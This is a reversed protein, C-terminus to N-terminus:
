SIKKFYMNYHIHTVLVTKTHSSCHMVLAQMYFDKLTTTSGAKVSDYSGTACM